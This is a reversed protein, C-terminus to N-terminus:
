PMWIPWRKWIVTIPSRKRLMRTALLAGAWRRDSMKTM